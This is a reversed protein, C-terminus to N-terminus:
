GAHAPQRNQRNRRSPKYGLGLVVRRLQDQKALHQHVEELGIETARYIRRRMRPRTQAMVVEAQLFGKRKLQRITIGVRRRDFHAGVNKLARLVEPAHVPKNHSLVALMVLLEFSGFMMRMPVEWFFKSTRQQRNWM